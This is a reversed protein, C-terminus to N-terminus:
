HYPHQKPTNRANELEEIALQIWRREEPELDKQPISYLQYPDKNLDYYEVFNEGDQFKCVVKNEKDDLYRICQYTNNRSDECKCGWELSCMFMKHDRNHYKECDGDIDIGHNFEGYHSFIISNRKQEIDVLTFPNNIM